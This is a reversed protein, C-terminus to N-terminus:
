KRKFESFDEDPNVAEPSKAAGTQYATKRLEEPMPSHLPFYYNSHVYDYDDELVPKGYGHTRLFGNVLEPHNRLVSEVNENDVLEEGIKGKGAFYNLMESYLNEPIDAKTNNNFTFPKTKVIKKGDADLGMQTRVMDASMNKLVVQYGQSIAAREKWYEQNAAQAEAELQAKLKLNGQAAAQEIKSKYDYFDKQWQQDLQTLKMKFDNDAERLRKNYEREEQKVALNFEKDDIAKLRDNAQKAKEFAAIYGRSEKYPDVAPASEGANGGIAGGVASGGLKGISNFVDALAYYQQMKAADTKEKLAEQRQAALLDQFTSPSNKKAAEEKVPNPMEPATVGTTQPTVSQVGSTTGAVRPISPTGVNLNATKNADQRLKASAQEVVDPAAMRTAKTTAGDANTMQIASHVADAVSPVGDKMVAGYASKIQDSTLGETAYSNQGHNDAPNSNRSATVVAPKIAPIASHVADSVSPVDKKTIASYASAVQEPTYEVASPVAIRREEREAKRKKAKEKLTAM